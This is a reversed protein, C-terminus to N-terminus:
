ALRNRRVSDVSEERSTEAWGNVMAEHCSASLAVPELLALRNAMM